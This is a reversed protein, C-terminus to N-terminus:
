RYEKHSFHYLVQIYDWVVKQSNESLNEWYYNLKSFLQHNKFNKSHDIYFFRSDRTDILDKYPLFTNYFDDIIKENDDVIAINITSTIVKIERDEPFVQIIEKLFSKLQKYFEKM